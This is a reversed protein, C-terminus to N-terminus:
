RRTHCLHLRSWMVKAVMAIVAIICSSGYSIYLTTSSHVPLLARGCIKWRITRCLRRKYMSRCRSWGSLNPQRDGECTNRPGDRQTRAVTGGGAERTPAKKSLGLESLLQSYATQVPVPRVPGYLRAIRRQVTSTVTQYSSLLYAMYQGPSVKGACDPQGGTSCM